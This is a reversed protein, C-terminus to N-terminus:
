RWLILYWVVAVAFSAPVSFIILSILMNLRKNLSEFIKLNQKINEQLEFKENTEFIPKGFKPAILRRIYVLLIVLYTLFLIKATARIIWALGDSHIDVGVDKSLFNALGLIAVVVVGLLWTARTGITKMDDKIEELRAVSNESDMSM